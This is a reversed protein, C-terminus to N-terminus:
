QKQGMDRLLLPLTASIWMVRKDSKYSSKNLIVAQLINCKHGGNNTRNYKSFFHLQLFQIGPEKTVGILFIKSIKETKLDDNDCLPDIDPFFLLLM